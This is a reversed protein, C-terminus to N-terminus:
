EASEEAAEVELETILNDISEIKQAILSAQLDDIKLKAAENFYAKANELGDLTGKSVSVDAKYMLIMLDLNNLRTHAIQSIESATAYTLAKNLYSRIGEFDPMGPVELLTDAKEVYYNFILPFVDTQSYIDKKMEPPQVGPLMILLEEGMPSFKGQWIEVAGNSSKIYYNNTNMASTGIILAILVIFVAVAYKMAKEMPDDFTTDIDDPPGYTVSVDPEAKEAAPKIEKIDFKRFLLEKIRGAEEKTLDPFLPPAAFGKLYEQDPGVTFLKKPKWTDFKKHMIDKLSVKKKKPAAKPKPKAKPAAKKVKPAAKPKAKAKAKPAAKPKPKAKAKPAAKIKAAAKPKPKAKAKPAAKKTKPAAKAKIAAKKAKTTMEEDKKKSPKKKKKSTSKLLSNKGM